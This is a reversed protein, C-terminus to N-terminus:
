LPHSRPCSNSMDHLATFCLFHEFHQGTMAFVSHSKCMALEDLWWQSIVSEDSVWWQSMVSEDSVWWEHNRRIQQKWTKPRENHTTKWAHAAYLRQGAVNGQLPHFYHPNPHLGVFSLLYVWIILCSASLLLLGDLGDLVHVVVTKWGSRVVLLVSMCQGSVLSMLFSFLAWPLSLRLPWARCWGAGDEGSLVLAQINIQNSTPQLLNLLCFWPAPKASAKMHKSPQHSSFSGLRKTMNKRSRKGSPSHLWRVGMAWSWHFKEAVPVFPIICWSIQCRPPRFRSTSILVLTKAKWWLQRGVSCSSLQAFADGGALREWLSALPLKDCSKVPSAWIPYSGFFPYCGSLRCM